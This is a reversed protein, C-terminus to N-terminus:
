SGGATVTFTNIISKIVSRHAKFCAPSCGAALLWVKNTPSNVLAEQEFALSDKGGEIEYSVITGRLAGKVVVKEPALATAPPGDSSTGDVNFIESELSSLSTEVQDQSGLAVVLGLAWPHSGALGAPGLNTVSSVFSTYLPYSSGQAELQAAQATTPLGLTQLSSQDFSDWHPPVKYYFEQQTTGVYLASTSCGALLGALGVLLVLGLGARWRHLGGEGRRLPLVRVPKLSVPVYCAVAAPLRGSTAAQM